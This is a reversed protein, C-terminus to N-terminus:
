KEDVKEKCKVCYGTNKLVGTGCKPCEFTATEDSLLMKAIKVLEIAVATRNM